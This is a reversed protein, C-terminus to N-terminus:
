QTKTGTGSSKDDKEVRQLVEAAALEKEKLKRAKKEAEHIRWRPGYKCLAWLMPIIAVFILGWLTFTWGPGMAEIMPVIAAVGGASILCRVLNVAATATAPKGRQIDILLTNSTNFAASVGFGVIASVVLLAGIHVRLHVLWGFLIFATTGLLHAPGVVDIRAQEIPFDSLDQQKGQVIEMGVKKAHVAFRWDVLRGAGVAAVLSGIGTPLYCLGVQLENYGYYRKLMYPLAVCLLMYGNFFIGNYVLLIASEKERLISLTRLPNPFHFNGTEKPQISSQGEIDSALKRRELYGLVSMNVGRAPISGNGVVNRSTEPVFIAFLVGFVAGFICLFWFIARWGLYESLAGGIVPGIAPGVLIGGTAYGMFKGREASTAVDAVTAIALAITPSSGSAQLCRLVLLAAYNTQLALGINAGSYIVFCIIFALRRGSQDSLGAIFAPAIAQAIM